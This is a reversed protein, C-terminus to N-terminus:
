IAKSIKNYIEKHGLYNIYYSENTFYYENKNLISSIDIFTFNNSICTERIIANIKNINLLEQKKITYLGLVIVKKNNLMKIMSLLEEIDEKYEKIISSTIKDESLEDMGINITLISAENIARQIEIKENSINITKNDKIEYILEKVTKGTSAFEYYKNLKHNNKYEEKLYDNYSYGKINYPTMGLALGDGLAVINIEDSKTHFYIIASFITGLITILILKNKM